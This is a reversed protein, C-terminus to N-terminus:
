VGMGLRYPMLMDTSTKDLLEWNDTNRDFLLEVRMLIAEKVDRRLPRAYNALLPNNRYYDQWDRMTWGESWGQLGVVGSLYPPSSYHPSDTPEPLPTTPSDAPSNLELLQGLSRGCFNEAWDIAAGILRTIRADHETLGADISLQDKAETLSIYPTPPSTM